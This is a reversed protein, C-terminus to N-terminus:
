RCPANASTTAEVTAPVGSPASAPPATSPPQPSPKPGGSALDLAAGRQNQLDQGGVLLLWASKLDITLSFLMPVLFLTFLTSVILGGVVVSGLGRYLESGSGPMLVLPLMGGVSTLTSMLIPRLRTRVSEAIARRPAMMEVLDEEAEGVGRMFNLSQHVILIANNVVIGILIVFGLMTLVDLNQDPMYRDALSWRHVMSLAVFGGLTALPVSLLISIPYLFSEFLVCMLLYTVVLALFMRSTFFGLVTGDGLLAERVRSLKDASGALQTQVTTPIVGNARLGSLLDEVDSMSQELPVGTEPTFQLTVARREEIRNIQQPATTRVLQAVSSLPVVQGGRTVIPTDALEFLDRRRQSGDPLVANQDILTLDISDGQDRFDGIIAGDSLARVATGVDRTTLGLDSARLRDLVIRLEPGEINFNSPQPQVKAFGYEQAMPMYVAFAAASVQDIDDGSFEINISTGSSGGLRFLPAQNAFAFTGPAHDSRTAYNLLSQVDVVRRDDSSIAGHFMIGGFGVFFYNDISPPVVTGSMPDFASKPVVPLKALAREYGEADTSKLEGAEWFPRIDNEVRHAVDEMMELNYGPPAIIMGFVMNRNGSPLYDTPPMLLYSFGISAFAFIAVVTVRMVVSGTLFYVLRGLGASLGRGGIGESHAQQAASRKPPNKSGKKRGEGRHARAYLKEGFRLWRNAASPIVTISVMLSLLVSACIALAIDRFLQGAEEQIFLIPVFVAVTTLTSALVAGWVERAGRYSAVAPSEGMELHRFINELVVIANDVVMGVAFALGALSVVNLNRGMAVMAVFTGIISIPIALAIVGVSRISRLFLLLVVVALGGGIFINNRVLNIAQRIYITQDYVQRLQLDGNLDLRRAAHALLGGPQNLEAIAAKLGGMVEIVNTGTERQANIALVTRGKSRVFSGPEKYTIVTQAVDRVRIPGAETYTIITQDVDEVREFRGVTRVRVNLKGEEVSGASINTNENRLSNILESYTVGLQALRVPDFRVQVERERGGLVNIESVGEVRELAPKITDEAFDQLSRVDFSDDSSEFIIWAIYDRNRPDSAAIVPEDVGDPYSPVERLKDSVDRLAAGQDAGVYFELTLTATDQQSQSSMKKLGEIGKLKDEQPEVIEQEVEQPSAGEWFTQVTIVTSDVNPTLQVPIQTVALVGFLITLLVAVTVAVPKSIATRILDM